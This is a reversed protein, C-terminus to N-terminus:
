PLTLLLVLAAIAILVFDLVFAGLVLLVFPLSLLRAARALAVTKLLTDRSGLLFARIRWVTVFFGLLRRTRGVEAPAALEEVHDRAEDPIATLKDPLALVDELSLWALFTAGAPVLLLFLVPLALLVRASLPWVLGGCMMWWLWLASLASLVALNRVKGALGQVGRQLAGLRRLLATKRSPAELPADGEAPLASAEAAPVETAPRDSAPTSM